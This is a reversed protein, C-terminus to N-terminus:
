ITQQAAQAAHYALAQRIHEVTSGLKNAIGDVSMGADRMHSVQDIRIQKDETAVGLDSIWVLLPWAELNPGNGAGCNFSALISM